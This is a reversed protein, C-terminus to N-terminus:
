NWVDTTVREDERDFTWALTEADLRMHPGVASLTRLMRALADGKIFSIVQVVSDAHLRTLADRVRGTDNNALAAQYDAIHHHLHM